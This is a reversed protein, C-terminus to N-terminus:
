ILPFDLRWILSFDRFLLFTELDSYRKLVALSIINVGELGVYIFAKYIAGNQGYM